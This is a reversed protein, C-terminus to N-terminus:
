GKKVEKTISPETNFVFQPTLNNLRNKFEEIMLEKVESLKADRSAKITIPTTFVAKVDASWWVKQWIIDGNDVLKQVHADVQEKVLRAILDQDIPASVPEIHAAAPKSPAAAFVKKDEKSRKGEVYKNWMFQMDKVIEKTKANAPLALNRRLTRIIGYTCGLSKGLAKDAKHYDEYILFAEWADLQGQSFNTNVTNEKRIVLLYYGSVSKRYM